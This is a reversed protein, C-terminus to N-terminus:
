YIVHITCVASTDLAILTVGLITRTMTINGKYINAGLVGLDAVGPGCRQGYCWAVRRCLTTANRKTSAVPVSTLDSPENRSVAPTMHHIYTEVSELAALVNWHATYRM